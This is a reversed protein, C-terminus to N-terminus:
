GKNFNHLDPPRIKCGESGQLGKPQQPAFYMEYNGGIALEVSAGPAFFTKVGQETTWAEWVDEVAAPVVVAKRIALGTTVFLKETMGEEGATSAEPRAYLSEQFLVQGVPFGMFMFGIGWLGLIIKSSPKKM